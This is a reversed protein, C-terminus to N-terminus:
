KRYNVLLYSYTRIAKGKAHMCHVDVAVAGVLIYTNRVTHVYPYVHGGIYLCSIILNGEGCGM